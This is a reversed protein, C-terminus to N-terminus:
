PRGGEATSQGFIPGFLLQLPPNKSTGGCRAVVQVADPTPDNPDLVYTGSGNDYKWKGVVIDGAPANSPNSDLVVGTPCCGVATNRAATAVAAARVLDWNTQGPVALKAAGALAAADAAAQLQMRATVAYGTDIALGMVGILVIAAIAIYI